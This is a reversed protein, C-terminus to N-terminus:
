CLTMHAISSSITLFDRARDVLQVLTKAKKKRKTAPKKVSKRKQKGLNNTVQKLAEASNSENAAVREIINDSVAESNSGGDDLNNNNASTSLDMEAIDHDEEMIMPNCAYCVGCFYKGVLGIHCAFESQMPNDGLLALVSPILM